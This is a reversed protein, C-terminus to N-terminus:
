TESSNRSKHSYDSCKHEDSADRCDMVGNCIHESKLCRGLPCRLGDCTPEVGPTLQLDTSLWFIIIPSRLGYAVSCYSVLLTTFGIPTNPLKPSSAPGEPEVVAMVM